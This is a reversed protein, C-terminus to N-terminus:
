WPSNDPAERELEEVDDADVVRKALGFRFGARALSALHRERRERRQGSQDFPGLRKRRAHNIAARLEVDGECEGKLRALATDALEQPVGRQRLDRGIVYLSRGRRHLVSTRSEAYRADNLIDARTLRAVLPAVWPKSVSLEVFGERDAETLKRMLYQEFRKTTTPFRSIYNLAM